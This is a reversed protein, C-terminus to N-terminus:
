SDLVSKQRGGDHRGQMPNKKVWKTANNKIVNQTLNHIHYRLVLFFFFPLLDLM